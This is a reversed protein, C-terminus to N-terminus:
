RSTATVAEEIVKTVADPKVVLFFHSGDVKVIHCNARQAMKM